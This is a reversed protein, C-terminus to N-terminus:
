ATKVIQLVAAPALPVNMSTWVIGELIKLALAAYAVTPDLCTEVVETAVDLLVCMQLRQANM